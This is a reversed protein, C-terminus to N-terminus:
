ISKPKLLHNWVGSVFASLMSEKYCLKHKWDNTKWRRYKWMVRPILESPMKETFEPSLIESFVREKLSSDVDIDNMFLSAEFGLDEICIANLLGFMEKMGYEELVGILWKWNVENGHAKVFFAWDLLQRITLEAAAFHAMAHRLLFLAHLNPSPLFVREGYVETYHSDDKGLEKFVRELRRNSKHHHDNVFDYHNEVMFDGWYFVTHHHENTDVDISFEKSIVEDALRQKGFLWIDIDGCPRHNPKPWDLSCAYGKLIMMKFHHDNYFGAMEAIAHRYQEHRYEFDKLSHGNWQLLISKPPRQNEPLVGIGDIIITTLGQKSALAMLKDWNTKSSISPMLSVDNGIGIRVLSTFTQELETM